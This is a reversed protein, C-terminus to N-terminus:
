YGHMVHGQPDPANAFASAVRANLTTAGFPVYGSTIGKAFCMIDSQVKWGRSGTLAGSRGFGTVVEDAILLVGHRDCVERVLPWFNAPPVIVGGAGQVPEAIFAAVTGPTQFQIERELLEACIRALEEPNETFPNRYTWPTEIHFCGPLLPEYSARFAPNGNVSAGGFHVGHYGHKLAI